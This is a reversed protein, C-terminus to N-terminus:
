TSAPAATSGRVILHTPIRVTCGSASRARQTVILRVAMRGIADASVHVTTLPPTTLSAILADDFGVVSLDHPIRLGAAAAARTVALAGWDNCCALGTPRDSQTLLTQLRETTGVISDYPVSLWAPPVTLGLRLAHFRFAAAREKGVTDDLGAVYGVRRHGLNALHEVAQGIGVFNDTTVVEHAGEGHLIDVLVLPHQCGSRFSALGPGGEGVLLVGDLEDTLGALVAPSTLDSVVQVIAKGGQARIEDLIGDLISRYFDNTLEASRSLLTEPAAATVPGIAVGTPSSKIPEIHSRRHLIVEILREKRETTQVTRGRRAVYGLEVVAKEVSSRVDASVGEAGNVVRSITAISFGTQKAVDELTAPM